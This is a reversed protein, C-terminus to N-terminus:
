TADAIAEEALQEVEDYEPATLGPFHDELIVRRDDPLVRRGDALAWARARELQARELQGCEEARSWIEAASLGRTSRPRAAAHWGNRKAQELLSWVLAMPKDGSSAQNVCVMVADLNTAIGEDILQRQWAALHPTSSASIPSLVTEASSLDDRAVVVDEERVGERVETLIAGAHAYAHIDVKGPRPHGGKESSLHEDSQGGKATSLHVSVHAGKDARPLGVVSLNGRGNGPKYNVIGFKALKRVARRATQVDMGTPTLQAVSVRDALRSYSSTLCGIRDLVKRDGLSLEVADAREVAQRWASAAVAYKVREGIDALWSDDVPVDKRRAGAGAVELSDM